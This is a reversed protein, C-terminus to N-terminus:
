IGNDPLLFGRWPGDNTLLVKGVIFSNVGYNLIRYDPIPDVIPNQTIRTRVPERADDNM